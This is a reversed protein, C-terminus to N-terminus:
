EKRATAAMRARQSSNATGVPRTQPATPVANWRATSCTVSHRASCMQSSQSSGTAPRAM